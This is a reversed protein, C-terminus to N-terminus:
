YKCLAIMNGVYNKLKPVSTISLPSDLVELAFVQSRKPLVKLYPAYFSSEADELCFFLTLMEFPTPLFGTERLLDAYKEMDAIKGATIMLGEPLQIFKEETRFSRTAFIGNGSTESSRIELGDFIVGNKRSWVLFKEVPDDPHM